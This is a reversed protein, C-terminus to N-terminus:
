GCTRFQAYLTGAKEGYSKLSLRGFVDTANGDVKSGDGGFHKQAIREVLREGTFLQGTRPDRQQSTSTIKDQLSANFAAEQAAPPFFQFLEEKTVKGGSNVQALWESGGQKSAIAQVAYSNYSMEQYKGLARGCNQGRDACVYPGLEDSHGSSEISAIANKLASLDVGQATGETCTANTSRSNGASQAVTSSEAGMDTSASRKAQSPVSSARMQQDDLTGVFIPADRRYTLFPVPGIFYPTSGCSNSFRFFLATDVTDTREDPEMVAVKFASGFPLRGTPEKGGNVGKLCGWGGEVQQYKGSIWSLSEGGSRISHSLNNLEIYPCAQNRCPVSFGAVDSGSIVDSERRKEAKGWIMDIQAVASGLEALPVPFSALPLANLGPVDAILADQWGQFQGLQVSEINPIDAIAYQSLDVENLKLNGLAPHNTLLTSLPTDGDVAFSGISNAKQSSLVAAIPPIQKASFQGLSPVVSLLQKLTQQTLLPFSNLPIKNTNNDNNIATLSLLDPRLAETIDGLSLYQDPTQGAQWTRTKGEVKVSGNQQIAPLSDFSIQQWDPLLIQPSKGNNSSLLRTPLNDSIVAQTQQAPLPFLFSSVVALCCSLFVLIALHFVKM